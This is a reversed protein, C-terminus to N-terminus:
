RLTLAAADSCHRLLAAAGAAPLAQLPLPSLLVSLTPLPLLEEQAGDTAM